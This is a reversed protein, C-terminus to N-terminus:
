SKDMAARHPGPHRSPTAQYSGPRQTFQSKGATGTGPAEANGFPSPSVDVAEVPGPVALEVGGQVADGGDLGAAVVAGAGEQLAAACGCVLGPFGAEADELAVQGVDDEASQGGVGPAEIVGSLLCSSM